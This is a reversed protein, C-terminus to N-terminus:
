YCWHVLKFKKSSNIVVRLIHDFFKQILRQPKCASAKISSSISCYVETNGILFFLLRTVIIRPLNNTWQYCVLRREGLLKCLENIFAENAVASTINVITNSRWNVNGYLARINLQRVVIFHDNLNVYFRPVWKAYSLFKIDFKFTKVTSLSFSSSVNPMPWFCFCNNVGLFHPNVHFFNGFQIFISLLAFLFTVSSLTHSFLVGELMKM